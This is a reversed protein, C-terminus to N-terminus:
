SKDEVLAALAGHAHGMNPSDWMGDRGLRLVDAICTDWAISEPSPDIPRHYSNTWKMTLGKIRDLQEELKANEEQLQVAKEEWIEACTHIHLAAEELKAITADRQTVKVALEVVIPCLDGGDEKQKCGSM